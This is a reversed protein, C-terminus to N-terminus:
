AHDKRIVTSADIEAGLRLRTKESRAAGYVAGPTEM